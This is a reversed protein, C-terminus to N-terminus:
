EIRNPLSKLQDLATQANAVFQELEQVGLYQEYHPDVENALRVVSVGGARVVAFSHYDTTLEQWPDGIPLFRRGDETVIGSPTGSADVLTERAGPEGQWRGTSNYWDELSEYVTESDTLPGAENRFLEPYQERIPDLTDDTVEDFKLLKRITRIASTPPEPKVSRGLTQELQYLSQDDIMEGFEPM